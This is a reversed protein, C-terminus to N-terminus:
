NRRQKALERSNKIYGITAPIGFYGVGIVTAIVGFIWFFRSLTDSSILYALVFGGIALNQCFVAHKGALSPALAKRHHRLSGYSALANTLNQLIMVIVAIVPAIGFYWVSILMAFGALKDAIPDLTAGFSTISHTKRAVWGDAMDFFRGVAALIAGAWTNLFLAGVLTLVFGCVTIVNPINIIPARKQNM